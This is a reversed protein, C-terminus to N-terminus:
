TTKPSLRTELDAIVRQIFVPKRDDVPLAEIAQLLLSLAMMTKLAEAPIPSRGQTVVHRMAVGNEQVCGIGVIGALPPPLQMVAHLIAVVLAHGDRSTEPFSEAVQREIVEINPGHTTPVPTM